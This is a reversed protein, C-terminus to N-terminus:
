SGCPFLTFLSAPCIKSTDHYGKLIFLLDNVSLVTVGSLNFLKRLIGAYQSPTLALSYVKLAVSSPHHYLNHSPPSRSVMVHKRMTDDILFDRLLAGQSAQRQRRM